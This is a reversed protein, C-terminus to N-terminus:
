PKLPDLRNLQDKMSDGGNPQTEHHIQSVQRKIVDLNETLGVIAADTKAAHDAVDQATKATWKALQKATEATNAALASATNATSTALVQAIKARDEFQSETLDQLREMVGPRAPVGPSAPTGAWGDLFQNWRKFLKPVGRFVYLVVAAGVAGGVYELVVVGTSNLLGSV